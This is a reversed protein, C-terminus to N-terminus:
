HPFIVVHISIPSTPERHLSFILESIPFGGREYNRNTYRDPLFSPHGLYLLLQPLGTM